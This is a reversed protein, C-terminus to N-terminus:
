LKPSLIFFSLSFLWQSCILLILLIVKKRIILASNLIGVAIDKLIVMAM